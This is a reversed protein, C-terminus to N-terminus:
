NALPLGTLPDTGPKPKWEKDTPKKDNFLDPSTRKLWDLYDPDMYDGTRPDRGAVLDEQLAQVIHEGALGKYAVM